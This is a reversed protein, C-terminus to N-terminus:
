RIQVELLPALSRKATFCVIVSLDALVRIEM